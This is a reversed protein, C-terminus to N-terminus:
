LGTKRTPDHARDRLAPDLPEDGELLVLLISRLDLAEAQTLTLIPSDNDDM